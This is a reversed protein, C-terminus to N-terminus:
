RIMGEPNGRFAIRFRAWSLNPVRAHWIKKWTKKETTM